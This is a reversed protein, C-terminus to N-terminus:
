PLPEVPDDSTTSGGEVDHMETTEWCTGAHPGDLVCFRRTTLFYDGNDFYRGRSMADLRLRTGPALALEAAPRHLLQGDGFDLAARPKVWEAGVPQEGSVVWLRPEDAVRKARAFPHDHASCYDDRGLAAHAELPEYM